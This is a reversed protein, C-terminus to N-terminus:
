AERADRELARKCPRAIDLLYERHLGTFPPQQLVRKCLLAIQGIAQRDIRAGPAAASAPKDPLVPAPALPRARFKAELETSQRQLAAFEEPTM